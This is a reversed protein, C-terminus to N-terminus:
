WLHILGLMDFIGHAVVIPTAKRSRAYYIAFVAFQFGLSLATVWGYYLHYSTQVAISVAAALTWSGTLEGIETMLYARVILEEVFPNVLFAVITAVSLHTFMERATVGGTAHTLVARHVFHVLTYGFLIDWGYNFTSRRDLRIRFSDPQSVKFPSGGHLFAVV